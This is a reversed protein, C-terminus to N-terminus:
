PMAREIVQIAVLSRIPSANPHFSICIYRKVECYTTMNYLVLPMNLKYLNNWVTMQICSWVIIWRCVCFSENSWVAICKKSCIEIHNMNRIREEIRRAERMGWLGAIRKYSDHIIQGSWKTLFSFRVVFFERMENVSRQNGYM